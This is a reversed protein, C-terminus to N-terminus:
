STPTSGPLPTPEIPTKGAKIEALDKKLKRLSEDGLQLAAQVMTEEGQGAFTEYGVRYLGMMSVVREQYGKLCSPADVKMTETQINLLEQLPTGMSVRPTSGTLSAQMEFSQIQMDITEAYATFAKQGCEDQAEQTAKVSAAIQDAQATSQVAAAVTAQIDAESPGGCGVLLCLGLIVVCLRKM